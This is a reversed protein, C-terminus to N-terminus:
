VKLFYLEKEFEGKHEAQTYDKWEALKSNLFKDITKLPLVQRVFASQRALELAVGLNEPIRPLDKLSEPAADYLNADLASPLPM